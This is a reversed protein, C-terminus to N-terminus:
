ARESPAAREDETACDDETDTCSGGSSTDSDGRRQGAHAAHVASALKIGRRQALEVYYGTSPAAGRAEQRAPPAFLEVRSPACEPAGICAGQAEDVALARV